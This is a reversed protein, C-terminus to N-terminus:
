RAPITLLPQQALRGAQIRSVQMLLALMDKSHSDGNRISYYFRMLRRVCVREVAPEGFM